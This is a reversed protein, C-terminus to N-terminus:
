KAPAGGAPQAVGNRRSIDGIADGIFKTDDGLSVTPQCRPNCIWSERGAGRQVILKGGSANVRISSELVVVGEGDLAILNTEGYSKGTIVMGGGKKLLTIDAVSPNGLILTKVNAPLHFVRAQDLQVDVREAAIAAIAGFVAALLAMGFAIGRMAPACSRFPCPSAKTM